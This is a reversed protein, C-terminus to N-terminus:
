EKESWSTKLLLRSFSFWSGILACCTAPAAHSCDKAARTVFAHGRSGPGTERVLRSGTKIDEEGKKACCLLDNMESAGLDKRM